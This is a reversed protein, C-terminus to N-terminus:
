TGASLQANMFAYRNTVTGAPFVNYFGAAAPAQFIQKVPSETFTFNLPIAGLVGDNTAVSELYNNNLYLYNNYSNGTAINQYSGVWEITVAGGGFGLGASDFYVNYAVNTP